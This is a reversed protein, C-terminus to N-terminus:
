PLFWFNIERNINDLQNLQGLLQEVQYCVNILNSLNEVEEKSLKGELKNQIAKMYAYMEGCKDHPYRNNELEESVYSLLDSITILLQSIGERDLDPLLRDKLKLSIDVIEGFAKVIDLFM